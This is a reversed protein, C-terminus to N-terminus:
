PISVNLTYSNRTDAFLYVQLYYTKAAGSSNTVTIMETNGAGGLQRDRQRRLQRLARHRYRRELPHLQHDRDPDQRGARRDFVLRRRHEQRDPEPLKRRHHGPRHRLQRQERRRRRQRRGAPELHEPLDGLLQRLRRQDRQRLGLHRLAAPRLAAPHRQPLHRRGLLRRRHPRRDLQGAPPELRRLHHQLGQSGFSIRKYDGSPHHIATSATGNAPAASTWGWGPSAAPLGGEVMLLTYDSAAGTALLTAGTSTPSAGLSPPLGGCSSTQYRWFFQTTSAVAQTSMCHNATLWYPTFDSNQANILQGSCLYSSGNQVFTIRAVAKATSAWAPYCTVDNHCSGAASAPEGSLPDRYFHQM